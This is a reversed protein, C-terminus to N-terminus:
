GNTSGQSGLVIGALRQLVHLNRFGSSSAKLWPLWDGRRVVTITDEDIAVKKVESWPLIEHGNHLGERSVSLDGFAVPHGAQYARLTEPLQWHLTGERIIEWLANFRPLSNTFRIGEGDALGLILTRTYGWFALAAVNALPAMNAVRFPIAARQEVTDIEKWFCACAEIRQWVVLGETFVVVRFHRHQWVIITTRLWVLGPIGGLVLGFVLEGSAAGILVAMAAMIVFGLTVQWWQGRYSFEDAPAGLAAVKDYLTTPLDLLLREDGQM